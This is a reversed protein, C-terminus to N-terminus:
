SKHNLLNRLEAELNIYHRLRDETAELIGELVLIRQQEASKPMSVIRKNAHELDKTIEVENIMKRIRENKTYYYVVQSTEIAELGNEQKEQILLERPVIYQIINRDFSPYFLYKRKSNIFVVMSNESINELFKCVFEENVTDSRLDDIFYVGDNPQNPLNDLDVVKAKRYLNTINCFNEILLRDALYTFLQADEFLENAIKLACYYAHIQKFNKEFQLSFRITQDFFRGINNISTSTITMVKRPIESFVFPILESPFKTKIVTSDPFLREYYMLDDPHPKFVLQEGSSFYDIVLRYIDKQEEFTLQKLNAFHQTLILTSDTSAQTPQEVGFFALLKSKFDEDSDYIEKMLDFPVTNKFNFGPEQATPDCIRSTILGNEGTYLGFKKSVNHLELFLGKDIQELMHPRSLIGSAEEVFTFKIGKLVLYAGFYLQAGAVIIENCESIKINNSSLYQDFFKLINQEVNTKQRIDRNTDFFYVEDFFTKRIYSINTFKDAMSRQALLVCKESKYHKNRHVIHHLLHYTTIGYYLIM